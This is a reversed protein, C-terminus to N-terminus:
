EINIFKVSQNGFLYQGIKSANQQVFPEYITSGILGFAQFYCQGVMFGSSQNKLVDSLM